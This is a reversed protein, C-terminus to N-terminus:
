LERGPRTSGKGTPPLYGAARDGVRLTAGVQGLTDKARGDRLRPLPSLTCHCRNVRPPEDRGPLAASGRAFNAM